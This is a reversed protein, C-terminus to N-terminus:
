RGYKAAEREGDAIALRINDNARDFAYGQALLKILPELNPRKLSRIKEIMEVATMVTFDVDELHEMPTRKSPKETWCELFQCNPHRRKHIKHGDPPLQCIERALPHSVWCGKPRDDWDKPVPELKIKDVSMRAEFLSMGSGRLFM